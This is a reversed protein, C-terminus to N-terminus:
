SHAGSAGGVGEVDNIKGNRQCWPIRISQWAIIGALYRRHTQYREHFGLKSSFFFLSFLLFSIVFLPLSNVSFKDIKIDRSAELSALVGTGSWPSLVLKEKEEVVQVVEEVKKTKKANRKGRAM